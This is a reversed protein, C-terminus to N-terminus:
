VESSFAFTRALAAQRLRQARPSNTPSQTKSTTTPPSAPKSKPSSTTNNPWRPSPFDIIWFPKHLLDAYVTIRSGDPKVRDLSRDFTYRNLANDPKTPEPHDLGLLDCLETLFLQYNARERGGSVSWNAIFAEVADDPVQSSTQSAVPTTEPMGM